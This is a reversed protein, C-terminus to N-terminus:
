LELSICSIQMELPEMQSHGKRMTAFIKQDTMLDISQHYEQWIKVHLLTGKISAFRDM